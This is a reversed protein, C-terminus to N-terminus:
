HKNENPINLQLNCLCSIKKEQYLLLVKQKAKIQTRAKQLQKTKTRVATATVPKTKTLTKAETNLKNLAKLESKTLVVTKVQKQVARQLQVQDNGVKVEKYDVKPKKTKVVKLEIDKSTSEINKILKGTKTDIVKLKNEPLKSLHTIIVKKSTGKQIMVIYTKVADTERVLVNLRRIEKAKNLGIRKAVSAPLNSIKTILAKLKAKLKSLRTINNYTSNSLKVVKASPKFLQKYALETEVKQLRKQIEKRQKGKAKAQEKLLQSRKKQLIRLEGKRTVKLVPVKEKARAKEAKKTDKQIKEQRKKIAKREKAKQAKTKIKSPVKKVKSPLTKIKAPTTKIVKGARKIKTTIKVKAKPKPEPKYGKKMGRKIASDGIKLPLLETALIGGLREVQEARTPMRYYPVQEITTTVETDGNPLTKSSEIKKGDHYGVLVPETIREFVTYTYVAGAAGFVAKVTNRAITEGHPIKTILKTLGYRTAAGAGVRLMAPFSAFQAIKEPNKKVEIFVYNQFSTLAAKNKTVSGDTDFVNTIIKNQSKTLTAAGGTFNTMWKPLHATQRRELERQRKQISEISEGREYPVTIGMRKLKEAKLRDKEKQTREAPVQIKLVKQKVQEKKERQQALRIRGAPTKQTPTRRPTYRVPARKKPAEAELKKVIRIGALRQLEGPVPRGQDIYNRQIDAIVAKDHQEKTLKQGKYTFVPEHPKKGPTHHKLKSTKPRKGSEKFAREQAPTYKYVM